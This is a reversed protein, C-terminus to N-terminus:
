SVEETENFRKYNAVYENFDHDYSILNVFRHGWLIETSVYSTRGQVTQGTKRSDGFISFCIEFKKELLDKASYEYLPSDENIVHCVEEPWILFLKGNNLLDMRSQTPGLSEGELTSLERFLFAKVKTRIGHHQFTDVVRIVLCLQGDRLCIQFFKIFQLKSHSKM